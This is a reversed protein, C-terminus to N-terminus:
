LARSEFFDGLNEIAVIRHSMDIKSLNFLLVTMSRVKILLTTSYLVDLRHSCRHLTVKKPAPISLCYSAPKDLLVTNVFNSYHQSVVFSHPNWSKM